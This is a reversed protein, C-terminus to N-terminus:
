EFGRVSEQRLETGGPETRRQGARVGGVNGLEAPTDRM